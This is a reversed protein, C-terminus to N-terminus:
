DSQLGGCGITKNEKTMILNLDQIFACCPCFFWSLVTAACSEDINYKETLKHRNYSGVCCTCPTSIACCCCCFPGLDVAEMASGYNCPGCFYLKLCCGCGCDKIACCGFLGTPFEGVEAM